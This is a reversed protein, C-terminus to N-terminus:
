FGTRIGLSYNLPPKGSIYYDPDVKKNANYLLGVNNLYFYIETNKLPFHPHKTNAMKYSLRIDQLRVHDGKYVNIESTAYFNDRATNTSVPVSPINTILEDGPKKWRLYYDTHASTLGHDNQYSITPTRFVYGLRYSINVSLDFNKYRFENRLAGFHTPLVTGMFLLDEPKTNITIQTYNNSKEGNLYGMPDGNKPDLGAWKYAYIAYLPRGILPTGKDYLYNSLSGEKAYNTVRDHNYSLFFSSRWEFKGRINLTNLSLDFGNTRTNAYNGRFDAIGTSTPFPTDGILDIGQKTYVDLSGSLVDKFLGFDLGVNIIKVKEWRLEPNPPNVIQAYPLKVKLNNANRNAAMYTATTYASLTKDINGTYGFSGRLNLQNLWKLNYFPEKDISWNMGISYAPNGKQNTNVGFLNSKDIRASGFVTLKNAYRYSLNGYWSIFHDTKGSQAEINPISVRSAPQAYIPFLSLYDVIMSTAHDTDYGYLRYRYSEADLTKLEYGALANIQHKAGMSRDYKLQGRINHSIDQNLDTDFIAGLPIPRVITGDALRQSYRNIMNRSYYSEEDYITKHLGNNKAFQYLAEMKLGPALQYNITNSFRLNGILWQNNVHNIENVPFYNWDLLGQTSATALFSDRYSNLPLFQGNEDALRDYPEYGPLTPANLRNDLSSYQITNSIGLKSKLLSWNNTAMINFRESGNGIKKGRDKNFGSSIYYSHQEGGGSINLSYQQNLSRQDLYKSIDSRIDYGKLRNIREQAEADTIKGDRKLILIEVLTPLHSHATNLLDNQELTNYFKENFLQTQIDIYDANTIRDKFFEDPKAGISTNQSFSLKFPTNLKGKKTTIVIVGNGARAGWISASAADKLISIDAIDDPNIADIDGEYPFNDLVILPDNNGNITSQGRISINLRDQYLAARNFILGPTIDQLRELISPSVSRELLKTNVTSVSGTIREKATAQYGDYVVSVEDLNLAQAQLFILKLSSLESVTLLRTVYGLHSIEIIDDAHRVSLSFSGTSDTHTKITTNRISITADRLPKKTDLDIIKATYVQAQSILAAFFFILLFYYKKM